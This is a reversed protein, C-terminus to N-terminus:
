SKHAAASTPTRCRIMNLIKKTRAMVERHQEFRISSPFLAMAHQLYGLSPNTRDCISPSLIRIYPEHDFYNAHIKLLPEMLPKLTPTQLKMTCTVAVGALACVAPILGLGYRTISFCAFLTNCELM